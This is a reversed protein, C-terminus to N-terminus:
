AQCAISQIFGGGTSGSGTWVGAVHNADGSSFLIQAHTSAVVGIVADGGYDTAFYINTGDTCPYRFANTLQDWTLTGAGGGLGATPWESPLFAHSMDSTTTFFVGGVRESSTTCYYVDGGSGIAMGTIVSTGRIYTTSRQVQGPAQNTASHNPASNGVLGDWNYACSSSLLAITYTGTPLVANVDDTGDWWTLPSQSVRPDNTKISWITRVLQNNSNLVGASSIPGPPAPPTPAVAPSAALPEYFVSVTATAPSGQLNLVRFYITTDVFAVTNQNLVTLSQANNPTDAGANNVTVNTTVVIPTGLGSARTFVACTANSCNASAGSITIRNVRYKDFGSPINIPIATDGFANFNVLATAKLVGGLGPVSIGADSAVRDTVFQALHQPTIFGSQFVPAGNSM